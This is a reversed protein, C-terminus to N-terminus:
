ELGTKIQLFHLAPCLSSRGRPVQLAGAMGGPWPPWATRAAMPPVSSSLCLKGVCPGPLDRLVQLLPARELSPRPHPHPLAWCTGLHPGVSILLVQGGPPGSNACSRDAPDATPRALPTAHSRAGHRGSIGQNGKRSSPSAYAAGSLALTFILHTLPPM